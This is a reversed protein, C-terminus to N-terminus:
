GLDYMGLCLGYKQTAVHMHHYLGQFPTIPGAQRMAQIDHIGIGLHSSPALSNCDHHFVQIGSQDGNGLANFNSLYYGHIHQGPPPQVPFM